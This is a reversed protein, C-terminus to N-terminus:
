HCAHLNQVLAPIRSIVDVFISEHSVSTLMVALDLILILILRHSCGARLFLLFLLSEKQM